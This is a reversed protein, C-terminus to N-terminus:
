NESPKVVHDVVYIDARDRQPEMKLGLRDFVEFITPVDALDGGDEGKAGPAPPPGPQLPLWGTTEIRYLGRIGTRDV